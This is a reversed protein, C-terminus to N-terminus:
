TSVPLTGIIDELRQATAPWSYRGHVHARGKTGRARLTNM